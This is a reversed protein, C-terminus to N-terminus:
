HLAMEKALLTYSTERAAYDGCVTLVVVEDTQFEAALEAVRAAVHAPTGIVSRARQQAIVMRDRESYHAEAARAEAPTPIPKNLGYAMQLRRLDVGAALDQAQAQTAACVAFIAVAHHPQPARGQANYDTLYADAVTEGGHPNIFHAFAFKLGLQAALAGGYDSSGLIWVEPAGDVAPQAPVGAHAHSPPLTGDLHAVLEQVQRAFNEGHDYHDNSVARATKQDGGPARGVGLDIRGPFLAELMRFQEAVKFPAYYPLMVGGTGIRLRETVSGIRALLVEPCPDALSQLGHHEALWFRHYGLGDCLQALRVTAAIAERPSHGSVVPSQDLVSLKM